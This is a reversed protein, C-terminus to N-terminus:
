KKLSEKPEEQFAQQLKSTLQLATQASQLGTAKVAVDFLSIAAQAEEQTFEIKAKM